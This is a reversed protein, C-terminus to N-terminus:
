KQKIMTLVLKGELPFSYRSDGYLYSLTFTLTNDNIAFTYPSLQVPIYDTTATEDKSYKRAPVLTTDDIVLYPHKDALVCYRLVNNKMYAESFVNRYFMDTEGSLTSLDTIVRSDVQAKTTANYVTVVAKNFLYTGDTKNRYSLASAPSASSPQLTQSYACVSTMCVCLLLTHFLKM